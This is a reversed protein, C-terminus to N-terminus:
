NHRSKGKENTSGKLLQQVESFDLKREPLLMIGAAGMLRRENTCLKDIAAALKPDQKFAFETNLPLDKTFALLETNM